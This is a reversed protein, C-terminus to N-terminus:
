VAGALSAMEALADLGSSGVTSFRGEGWSGRRASLGRGLRLGGGRMAASQGYPLTDSSGSSANSASRTLSAAPAPLASSPLAASSRPAANSPAASSMSSSSAAVSPPAPPTGTGGGVSALLFEVDESGATLDARVAHMKKFHTMSLRQPPACSWVPPYRLLSQRDWFSSATFECADDPLDDPDPGTWLMYGSPEKREDLEAWLWGARSLAWGFNSDLQPTLGRSVGKLERRLAALFMTKEQCQWYGGATITASFYRGQGSRQEYVGPCPRSLQAVPQPGAAGGAVQPQSTAAAAGNSGVISAQQQQMLTIRANARALASHAEQLTLVATQLCRGLGSSVRLCRAQLQMRLLMEARLLDATRLAYKRDEHVHEEQSPTDASLAAAAQFAAEVSRSHSAVRQQLAGGAPGYPHLGDQLLGRALQM